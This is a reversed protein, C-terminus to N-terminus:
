ANIGSEDSESQTSDVDRCGRLDAQGFFGDLRPWGLKGDADWLFSRERELKLNQEVPCSERGPDDIGLPADVRRLGDSEERLGIVGVAEM